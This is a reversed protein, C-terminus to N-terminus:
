RLLIPVLVFQAVLIVVMFSMDLSGVPPVIRRVPRLVPDTAKYLFVQVRALTSGQQIRFWSLLAMPFMIFWLYMEILYGALKFLDM